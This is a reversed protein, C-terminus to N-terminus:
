QVHLYQRIKQQDERLEDWLVGWRGERGRRRECGRRERERAEMFYGARGAIEAALRESM